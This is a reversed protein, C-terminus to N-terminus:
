WPKGERYRVLDFSMCGTPEPRCETLPIDVSFQTGVNKKSSVSIKGNMKEVICKCLFLGMGVGLSPTSSTM